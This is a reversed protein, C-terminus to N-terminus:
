HSASAQILGSETIIQHVRQDHYEVPISDVIQLDFAIAIRQARCSPSALLRDYYGGGRGIRSGDRTFALGPVLIIDLAAVDLGPCHLKPEWVNMPGRQLDDLSQIQRPQLESSDIQFLALCAGQANLAPLLHSLLDPEGKLGGFLVITAGHPWATALHLINDAIQRSASAIFSPDLARLRERLHQRLTPKDHM